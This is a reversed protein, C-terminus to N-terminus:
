SFFMLLKSLLWFNASNSPENPESIEIKTCRIFCGSIPIFNPCEQTVTYAARERKSLLQGLDWYGKRGM